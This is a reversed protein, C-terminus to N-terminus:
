VRSPADLTLAGSPCAAVCAPAQGLPVCGDCKVAIGLDTARRIGRTPCASICKGCGTCRDEWLEVRGDRFAILAQHPCVSVCPHAACHDCVDLSPLVGFTRIALRRHELVFADEAQYPGGGYRASVCAIECLHCGTCQSANLQPFPPRM